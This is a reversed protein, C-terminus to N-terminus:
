VRRATESESKLWPVSHREVHTRDVRQTEPNLGRAMFWWDLLDYIAQWAAAPGLARWELLTEALLTEQSEPSITHKRTTIEARQTM